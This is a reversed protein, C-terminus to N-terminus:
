KKVRMRIAVVKYKQEDEKSFYKYYVNVGNEMTDIGPLCRELKEKRLYDSFNDYMKKSTIIVKFSRDFGFDNNQFVIIDGKKMSKFSGKNLRGEVKKLSLKTLSFWPESLHKVYETPM